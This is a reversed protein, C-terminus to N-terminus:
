YATYGGSIDFVAGTSFTLQPSALFGVLMAVGEPQGLRKMPVRALSGELMDRSAGPRLRMETDFGGPTVANVLIGREALERGLAKTMAILGGKSASYHSTNAPPDKGASSAINVIRGWGGDLMLPVAARCMYFPGRLNVALMHDWEEDRIQWLPGHRGGIAANNVLIDLRGWRSRCQEVADRATSPASVDAALHVADIGAAGLEATTGAVREELVDILLVRAGREGLVRAIAKGMGRAAGT